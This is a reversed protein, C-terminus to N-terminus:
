EQENRLPMEIEAFSDDTEYFRLVLKELNQFSQFRQTLRKSLWIALNESTTTHEVVIHRFDNEELFKIVRSDNIDVVFSHELENIIPKIINDMDYFDILIGNPDPTGILTVRVKYSHGHINSCLGKHFPLRHSMQWSYEKAIKVKM